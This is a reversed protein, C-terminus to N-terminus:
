KKGETSKTKAHRNQAGREAILEKVEKETVFNLPSWLNIYKELVKVQDKRAFNKVEQILHHITQKLEEMDNKLERVEDQLLQREQDMKKYGQVMNQNVLVLREGMINYKAELLRVREQSHMQIQEM